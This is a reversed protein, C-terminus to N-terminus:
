CIFMRKLSTGFFYRGVSVHEICEEMLNRIHDDDLSYCAVKGEKRYKVVRQGRLLRLLHSIASGTLGFPSVWEIFHNSM